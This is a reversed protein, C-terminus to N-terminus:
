PHNTSVVVILEDEDYKVPECDKDTVVGEVLALDIDLNTLKAIIEPTNAIFSAQKLHTINKRFNM